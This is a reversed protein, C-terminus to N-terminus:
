GWLLRRLAEFSLNIDASCCTQLIPGDEEGGAICKDPAATETGITTLLLDKFQAEVKQRRMPPFPKRGLGCVSDDTVGEASEASIAEKRSMVRTVRCGLADQEAKAKAIGVM